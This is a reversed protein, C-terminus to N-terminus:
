QNITHRVRIHAVLDRTRDLDASEEQILEDPQLLAVIEAVTNDQTSVVYDVADLAAVLEARASLSLVPEPPDTVIAIIQRNRHRDTLRRAHAATLPDFHGTIVTLKETREILAAAQQPAVIKQRTDLEKNSCNV